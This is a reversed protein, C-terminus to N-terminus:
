DMYEKVKKMLQSRRTEKLSNYYENLDKIISTDHNNAKLQKEMEKLLSNFNKDSEKELKSGIDLYKNALKVKSTKGSKYEEYGSQILSDLKAEYDEQMSLLKENYQNVINYFSTNDIKGVSDSNNDSIEVEDKASKDESNKELNEPVDTDDKEKIIKDIPNEKVEISKENSLEEYNEKHVKNYSTLMNFMFKLKGLNLVVIIFVLVLVSLVIYKIRKNKM